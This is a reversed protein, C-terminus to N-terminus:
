GTAAGVTVLDPQDTVTAEDAPAQSSGETVGGWLWVALTVLGLLFVVLLLLAPFPPSWDPDWWFMLPGDYGVTYRRLNQWFALFHAVVFAVAFLVRLRGRDLVRAPERALAFGCLIPVGVALPLTYRGQWGFGFRRAEIFELVAPVVVVLGLLAVIAVAMRRNTLSVSLAVLIGLVATWIVFTVAPAPTDQWGFVGVM